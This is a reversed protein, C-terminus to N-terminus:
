GVHSCLANLTSDSVEPPGNVAYFAFITITGVDAGSLTSIVDDSSRQLGINSNRYIIVPSMGIIPVYEDDDIDCLVAM